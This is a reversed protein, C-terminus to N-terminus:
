KHLITAFLEGEWAFVSVSLVTHGTEELQKVWHKLNDYKVTSTTARRIM